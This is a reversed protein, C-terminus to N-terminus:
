VGATQLGDLRERAMREVRHTGMANARMILRRYAATADSASQFCEVGQAAYYEAYMSLETPLVDVYYTLLEQWYTQYKEQDGQVVVAELLNILATGRAILSRGTRAVKEHIAIAAQLLGLEWACAALDSLLAERVSPNFTLAYARVLDAIAQVFQGRRQRNSGRIHLAHSEVAVLHWAHAARIVTDLLSEADALHGRSIWVISLDAKAYLAMADDGALGALEFGRLYCREADDFDGARHAARGHQVYAGAVAALDDAGAPSDLVETVVSLVHHGLLQQKTQELYSGYALLPGVAGIVDTPKTQDLVDLVTALLYRVEPASDPIATIHQRVHALTDRDETRRAPGIMLWDDFSRLVLFGACLAGWEPHHAGGCETLAQVFPQHRM